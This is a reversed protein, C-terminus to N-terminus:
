IHILSLELKKREKGEWMNFIKEICKIRYNFGFLRNVRQYLPITQLIRSNEWEVERLNYRTTDGVRKQIIGLRDGEVDELEVITGQTLGCKRLEEKLNGVSSWGSLDESESWNDVWREINKDLENVAEAYKERKHFEIVEYAHKSPLMDDRIIIPKPLCDGGFKECKEEGM